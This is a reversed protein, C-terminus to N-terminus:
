DSTDIVIDCIIQKILSYHLNLINGVNLPSIKSVRKEKDYRTKGM